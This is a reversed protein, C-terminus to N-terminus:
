RWHTLPQLVNPTFKKNGKNPTVTFDLIASDDIVVVENIKDSM